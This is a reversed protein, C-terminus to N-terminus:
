RLVQSTAALSLTVAFDVTNQDSSMNGEVSSGNAISVTTFDDEQITVMATNDNITVNMSM